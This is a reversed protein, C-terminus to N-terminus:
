PAAARRTAPSTSPQWRGCRPLGRHCDRGPDAVPVAGSSVVYMVYVTSQLSVHFPMSTCLQAESTAYSLHATLSINKKINFHVGLVGSKGRLKKKKKRQVGLM